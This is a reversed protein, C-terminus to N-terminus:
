DHLRLGKGLRINFRRQLNYVKESMRILKASDLEDGTIGAYVERYNAVHEPVKTLESHQANDAPEIDNWPLKCLGMLGFWTRFLPFIDGHGACIPM